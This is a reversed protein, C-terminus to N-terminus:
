KVHFTIEMPLKAYTAPKTVSEETFQAFFSWLGCFAQDYITTPYDLLKKENWTVNEKLDFGCAARSEPLWDSISCVIEKSGFKISTMFVVVIQSATSKESEEGM